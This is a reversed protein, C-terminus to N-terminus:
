EAMVDQFGCSRNELEFPFRLRDGWEAVGEARAIATNEM